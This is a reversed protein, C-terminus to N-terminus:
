FSKLLVATFWLSRTKIKRIMKFAIFNKKCYSYNMLMNDLSRTHTYQLHTRRDTNSSDSGPRACRVRKRQRRQPNLIRLSVVRDSSWSLFQMASSSPCNLLFYFKKKANQISKSSILAHTMSTVFNFSADAKNCFSQCCASIVAWFSVSALNVFKSIRM